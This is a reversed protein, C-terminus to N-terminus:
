EAEPLARIQDRINAAKEFDEDAVAKKLEDRLRREEKVPKMLESPEMSGKGRHKPSGHVKRLLEAMENRFADYCGGCGLRGTKGFDEFSMGCAPCRRVKPARKTGKSASSGKVTGVMGTVLEALPFPMHEFPSHFGRKEACDKCLNLMLKKNNIIQTLHVTSENQNCDQCLM